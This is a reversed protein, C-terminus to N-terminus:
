LKLITVVAAVTHNGTSVAFPFGYIDRLRSPLPKPHTEPNLTFVARM